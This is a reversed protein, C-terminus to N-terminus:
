RFFKQVTQVRRKMLLPLKWVRRLRMIQADALINAMEQLNRDYPMWFPEPSSALDTLTVRPRVFTNLSEPGNAV